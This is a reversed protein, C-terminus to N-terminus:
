ADSGTSVDKLDARTELYNTDFALVSEDPEMGWTECAALYAKPWWNKHETLGDEKWKNLDQYSAAWCKDGFAMAEKQSGIESVLWDRGVRAHLIEDAWDYDQMKMAIPTAAAVAYEWEAQKGTKKPMLGQEIFFLVAHRELPKLMTNLTLSWTHNLSIEQWDVGAYLFGLEGMMAHRAEDWLQRGMDRYYEYPKGPTEAIISAMMEPVDIERMRKYYMMLTKPVAPQDPDHLFAEANVGMNYLDKFREDRQPVGDYVYETKSFHAEPLSDSKEATGDMGGASALAQDLLAEWDALASEDEILCAVAKEGYAAIEEIEIMAHRLVRFTPHEFLKNTESLQQQISQLLAPIVKKYLGCVLAETNPANQIEDFLLELGAHPAKDLGYPPERMERVRAAFSGTHEICLYAHMSYAMKLEYVPEATIRSTFIQHLRGLAYHGYKMREVAEAVTLGAELATKLPMLDNIPPLGKYGTYTEVNPKVMINTRQQM